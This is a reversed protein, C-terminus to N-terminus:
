IEEILDVEVIDDVYTASVVYCHGEVEAIYHNIYGNVYGEYKFFTLKVDAETNLEAKVCEVIYDEREQKQRVAEELEETNRKNIEKQEAGIQALFIIGIVFLVLVAILVIYTFYDKFKESM